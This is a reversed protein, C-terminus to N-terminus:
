FTLKVIGPLKSRNSIILDVGRKTSTNIGLVTSLTIDSEGAALAPILAPSLITFNLSVGIAEYLSKTSAVPLIASTNADVLFGESLAFARFAVM